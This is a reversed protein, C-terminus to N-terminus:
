FLVERGIARHPWGASEERKHLKVFKGFIEAMPFDGRARRARRPLAKLLRLARLARLTSNLFVFSKEASEAGEATIKQSRM